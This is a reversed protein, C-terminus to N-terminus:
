GELTIQQEFEKVEFLDIVNDWFVWGDKSVREPYKTKIYEKTADSLFYGSRTAASLCMKASKYTLYRNNNTENVMCIERKTTTGQAIMQRDKSIVMFISEEVLRM